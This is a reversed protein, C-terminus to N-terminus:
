KLFIPPVDQGGGFLTLPEETRQSSVSDQIWPAGATAPLRDSYLGGYRFFAEGELEGRQGCLGSSHHVETTIVSWQQWPHQQHDLGGCQSGSGSGPFQLAGKDESSSVQGFRRVQGLCPLSMLCPSNLLKHSCYTLHLCCFSSCLTLATFEGCMGPSYSSLCQINILLMESKRVQTAHVERPALWTQGPGHFCVQPLGWLSHQDTGPGPQPTSTWNSELSALPPLHRPIDWYSICPDRTSRSCAAGGSPSSSSSLIFYQRTKNAM